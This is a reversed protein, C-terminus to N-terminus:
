HTKRLECIETYLELVSYAIKSCNADDRLACMTCERSIYLEFFLKQPSHARKGHVTVYISCASVNVEELALNSNNMGGLLPIAPSVKRIGEGSGSLTDKSPSMYHLYHALEVARTTYAMLTTFMRSTVFPHCFLVIVLMKAQLQGFVDTMTKNQWRRTVLLIRVANIAYVVICSVNCSGRWDSVQLILSLIVVKRNRFCFMCVKYM